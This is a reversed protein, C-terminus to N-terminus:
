PQERLAAIIDTASRTDVDAEFPPPPEPGQLQTQHTRAVSRLRGVMISAPDGFVSEGVADRVISEGWVHIVFEARDLEPDVGVRLRPLTWGEETEVETRLSEVATLFRGGQAPDVHRVLDSGVDVQLTQARLRAARAARGM